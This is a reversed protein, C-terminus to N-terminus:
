HFLERSKQLYLLPNKEQKRTNFRWELERVYEEAYKKTFHHYQRFLKRKAWSWCGEIYAANHFGLDHTQSVHHHTSRLNTYIPSGDSYVTVNTPVKERIFEKIPVGPKGDIVRLALTGLSPCSIGAVCVKPALAFTKMCHYRNSQKKFSGFYAEDVQVAEKPEFVISKVVHIRFLRFYRRVSVHSLGTLDETHQISYEKMWAWLLIMFTTLPIRLHGLWTASLLSFKKRCNPCHYRDEGRVRKIRFSGCRTCHVRGKPPFFIRRLEAAIQRESLTCSVRIM